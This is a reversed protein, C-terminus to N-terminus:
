QQIQLFNDYKKGKAAANVIFYYLKSTMAMKTFFIITKPVEFQELVQDHHAIIMGKSIKRKVCEQCYYKKAIIIVNRFFGYCKRPSFASNKVGDCWDGNDVLLVNKHIPCYARKKYFNCPDWFYVDPELSFRGSTPPSIIECLRFQRVKPYQISRQVKKASTGAVNDKLEPKYHITFGMISQLYAERLTLERIM